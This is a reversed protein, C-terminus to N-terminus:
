LERVTDIAKYVEEISIQVANLGDGSYYSATPNEGIVQPLAAWEMSLNRAFEDRSIRQNLYDRVGRRELLAIALIDQITEDFVVSLDIRQQSILSQLTTDIIQYRGVASSANGAAVFDLQWDVVEAVTMSTFRIDSNNVNGFYANYNGRSEGKAIVDLLGTAYINPM